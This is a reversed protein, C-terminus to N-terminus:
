RRPRGVRTSGTKLGASNRFTITRGHQVVSGTRIGQRNRLIVSSKPVAGYANLTICIGAVVAALIILATKM